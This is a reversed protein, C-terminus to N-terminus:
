PQKGEAKAIAARAVASVWCCSLDSGANDAGEAIEKLVALLEPASAILHAEESTLGDAIQSEYAGRYDSFVFWWKDPADEVATWKM